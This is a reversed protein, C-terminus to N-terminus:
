FACDFLNARDSFINLVFCKSTTLKLESNDAALHARKNNSDSGCFTYTYTFPERAQNIISVGTRKGSQFRRRVYLRRLYNVGGVVRLGCLGPTDPHTM